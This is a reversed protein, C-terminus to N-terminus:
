FEGRIGIMPVFLPLEEAEEVGTFPDVEYDLIEWQFAANFFDIYFDFFWTDFVERKQIRVDLRWYNPFRASNYAGPRGEFFTGCRDIINPTYPRGSNIHLVGGLTWNRGVEWSLVANFVHTQDFDFPIAGVGPIQRDSRSLAYSLWGYVSSGLRRRLLFEAGTTAGDVDLVSVEAINLGDCPTLDPGIRRDILSFDIPMFSDHHFATAALEFDGPLKVEVGAQLQWTRSLGNYLGPGEYGPIPGFVIPPEVFSFRTPGSYLGASGKLVVRSTLDYAAALRPNVATERASSAEAEYRYHDIRVSPNVLLGRLVGGPRIEAATWVGLTVGYDANGLFIDVDDDLTLGFDQVLVDAGASLEAAEGPVYGVEGYLRLNQQDARGSAMEDIDEDEPPTFFEHGLQLGTQFWASDGLGQRYRLDLKHFGVSLISDDEDTTPDGEEGARDSVGLVTLTLKGGNGFRHALRTQYDWYSFVLDASLGEIIYGLTGYRVAALVESSAGLKQARL